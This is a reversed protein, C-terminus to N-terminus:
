KILEVSKRNKIYDFPFIGPRVNQIKIAGVTLGRKGMYRAALIAKYDGQFAWTIDDAYHTGGSFKLIYVDSQSTKQPILISNGQGLCHVSNRSFTKGGNWENGFVSTGILYIGDRDKPLHMYFSDGPMANNHGYKNQLYNHIRKAFEIVSESSNIKNGSKNTIGGYQQFASAGHDAKHSIFGVEKGDSNLLAIDAKPDGKIHESSASIVNEIKFKGILITIPGGYQDVAQAIQDNLQATVIKEKRTRDIAGTFISKEIDSWRYTKGSVATFFNNFKNGTKLLDAPNEVGAELRKINDNYVILESNKDSFLFPKHDKIRNIVLEVYEGNKKTIDQGTFQAENLLFQKFTIM